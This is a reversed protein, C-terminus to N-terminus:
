RHSGYTYRVTLLIDLMNDLEDPSTPQLLQIQWDTNKPPSTIPITVEQSGDRYRKGQEGPFDMTLVAGGTPTLTAQFTLTAPRPEKLILTYRLEKVTLSGGQVLLPFRDQSIAFIGARNKDIRMKRWESPFEHRLSFMRHLGGQEDGIKMLLNQAKKMEEITKQGLVKGGERATYKLHLIVDSITDYDFQRFEGPLEIRWRSIAGAGEFPLYREDRFNLEFMGSDNQSNSTAVSQMPVLDDIFRLDDNNVDRVYSATMTSKSRLSNRLLTLTCSVSTYPGVVCPISISVSKIRRFYHGPFDLDFLAEPVDMECKGTVKLAILALSNLQLISVHKTIEYERKNQDHYAREMQKLALNLREGAQLGKRLSDWYGFQIFNSNTVGLEFRFTKEAKKALDYAMQYCQFYTASIDSIMWNYLERNTYKNRFFEEVLQANEIQKDTNIIEQNAIAIRLDAAAKQKDIQELEKAATEMQLEWERSRREFGAQTGSQNAWYTHVSSIYSLLTSVAQIGHGVNTGGWKATAVPSSVTGSTGVTFDPTAFALSAAIQAHQAGAQWNQGIDLQHQQEQELGTLGSENESLQDAYFQRRHDTMEWTKDLGDRTAQAELVQNKKVEKMLNLISTEHSARMGELEAADKKELASLLASGFSKLESCMELAKQLMFSFRYYPLPSNLDSLVSSLDVGKATAQVLLAPDIPPEFLPLQRLVGEINMCHRIKFLRDAVTDWYGLLKDNEPICFYLTAGLGLGGSIGASSMSSIPSSTGPTILQNELQVLANSFDDLSGRIDHYTKAPSEAQSPMGVPRPGLIDAALVYLQTAENIAEITDQRFLQDGWAILNDIYKMVVSKQYAIFRMRAILHPSFPNEMWQEIQAQIAVRGNSATTDKLAALQEQIQAHNTDNNYFPLFNWYRRPVLDVRDSTPNFIYHFWQQAEQFRQNRSLHTAILLPTHFFLEWNYLSYAGSYSFDVNEEPYPYGAKEPKYESKFFFRENNSHGYHALGNAQLATVEFNGHLDGIKGFSSQIISAPGRANATIIQGRRWPVNGYTNDKWYHVLFNGEPVVVHLENSIQWSPGNAMSSQVIHGSGTAVSTIVQDSDFRSGLGLFSGHYHVLDNGELTVLEVDGETSYRPNIINCPGTIKPTLVAGGNGTLMLKYSKWPLNQNVNDDYLTSDQYYIILGEDELAMVFLSWGDEGRSYGGGNFTRILSGPGIAKSTIEQGKRWPHSPNSNDRWYHVLSNGGQSNAEMAVVHFNGHQGTNANRQIICGPGTANSTITSTAQWPLLPTSNDRLYHVLNNGELVVAEFNEVSSGTKYDSQIVSGQGTAADSIVNIAGWRALNWPTHLYPNGLTQNDLTLLGRVGHRKLAKVFECVYSHYFPL